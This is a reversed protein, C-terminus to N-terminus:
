GHFAKKRRSLGAGKLLGPFGAVTALVADLAEGSAASLIPGASKAGPVRPLRFSPSGRQGGLLGPGYCRQGDVPPASGCYSFPSILLM